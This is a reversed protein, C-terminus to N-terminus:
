ALKDIEAQLAANQAATETIRVNLETLINTDPAEKANEEVISMQTNFENFVINRQHQQIISIKEEKTLEM